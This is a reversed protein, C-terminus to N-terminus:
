FGLTVQGGLPEETVPAPVVSEDLREHFRGIDSLEDAGREILARNGPGSGPGTWSAVRGYHNKLAETAGAWTGGNELDSAIVITCRSLGYIIKNRGMANGVSFPAGPTYPTILRIQGDAV